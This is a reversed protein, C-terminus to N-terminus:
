WPRNRWDFNTVIRPANYSAMASPPSAQKLTPHMVEPQDAVRGKPIISSNGTIRSRNFMEEACRNPRSVVEHIVEAPGVFGSQICDNQKGTSGPKWVIRRMLVNSQGLSAIVKFGEREFMSVTGRYKSYAGWRGVPYAEVM